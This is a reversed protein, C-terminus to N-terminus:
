PLRLLLLVNWRHLGGHLRVLLWHLELLWLLLLVQEVYAGLLGLLLGIKNVYPGFLGVGRAGGEVEVEATLLLGHLLCLGLRHVEEGPISRVTVLLLYWFLM